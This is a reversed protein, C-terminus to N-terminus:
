SKGTTHGNRGSCSAKKMFSAPFLYFLYGAIPFFVLIHIWLLTHQSTRNELILSYISFLIISAYCLLGGYFELRSVPFVM